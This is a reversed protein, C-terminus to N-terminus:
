LFYMSGIVYRRDKAKFPEVYVNAVAGNFKANFVAAGQATNEIAMKVFPRGDDDKLDIMNLWILNYRQGYVYCLGTDDFVFISIDGRIFPHQADTFVDFAADPGEFQMYGIASKVLLRMTEDKSAPYVGSIIVYSDTGLDIQEIYASLFANRLKVDIWGGGAEAKEIFHQVYLRGDQDKYMYQNTGVNDPNGGDAIVNGKMDYVTLFLDGFRYDDIKKDTFENAAYALGSKKMLTYGRRVLDEAANRDADPYYGCAVFYQTGKSGVVKEAYTSKKARKSTYDVWVGEDGSRMLKDIIEKNFQKGEVDKYALTNQGILGPRDGQAMIVGTFDVAYIYLDGAIFDGLPYSLNGFADADSWGRGVLEKFRAVAGKVLKIVSDKKSHPYYGAGIFYATKDKVVPKIYAVKTAGRWQYTIWGGGQEAKKIFNRVIYNGFPDQLDYLNDWILEPQDGHAFCRGTSDMLFLYLEGNVFEKTHSFATGAENRTHANFYDVGKNVLAMVEERKKEIDFGQSVHPEPATVSQATLSEGEENTSEEPEEAPMAEVPREQALEEARQDQESSLREVARTEAASSVPHQNPEVEGRDLAVVYVGVALGLGVGYPYLLKTM